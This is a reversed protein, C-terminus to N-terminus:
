EGKNLYRDCLGSNQIWSFGRCYGLTCARKYFFCSLGYEGKLYWAYGLNVYGQAFKPSLEIAKTYNIIAKDYLGKRGYANGRNNCAHAYEPDLEIVKSYDAIAEDFMGKEYYANGRNFYAWTHNPNEKIAKSYDEVTYGHVTFPAMLLIIVIICILYFRHETEM